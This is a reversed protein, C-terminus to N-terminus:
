IIEKTFYEPKDLLKEKRLKLAYEVLTPIAYFKYFWKFIDYFVISFLNMTLALYFFPNTFLFRASYSSQYNISVMHDYLFIFLAFPTISTILITLILIWTIHSARTVSFINTALILVSYGCFSVAWFDSVRGSSDIPRDAFIKINLVLVIVSHCVAEVCEWFFKNM